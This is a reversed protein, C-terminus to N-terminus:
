HHRVQDIGPAGQSMCHCFGHPRLTRQPSPWMLKQVVRAANSGFSQPPVPPLGIDFTVGPSLVGPHRVM